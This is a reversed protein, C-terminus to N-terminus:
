LDAIKIQQFNANQNLFYASLRLNEKVELQKTKQTLKQGFKYIKSWLLGIKSISKMTSHEVDVM